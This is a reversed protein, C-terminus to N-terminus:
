IQGDTDDAPMLKCVSQVPIRTGDTFILMHEAADYHRFVGTYNVYRGGAKRADPQFFILAATPHMPEADLLRQFAADLAALDDEAMEARVDTLRATEGIKEDYGTLAAFAAFQVARDAIPMQRRTKSVHHPLNIIDSFDDM